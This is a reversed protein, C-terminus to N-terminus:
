GDVICNKYQFKMWYIQNSKDPKYKIMKHLIAYEHDVEDMFLRKNM